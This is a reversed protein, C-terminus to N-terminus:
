PSFNPGTNAKKEGRSATSKFALWPIDVVHCYYCVMFDIWTEVSKQLQAQSYFINSLFLLHVRKSLCYYIDLLHNNAIFTINNFLTQMHTNETTQLANLSPILVVTEELLM